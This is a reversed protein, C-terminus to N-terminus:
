PEAFTARYVSICFSLLIIYHRTFKYPRGPDNFLHGLSLTQPTM